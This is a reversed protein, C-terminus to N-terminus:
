PGDVCMTWGGRWRLPVRFDSIKWIQLVQIGIIHSSNFVINTLNISLLDPM